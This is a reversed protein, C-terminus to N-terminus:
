RRSELVARGDLVVQRQDLHEVLQPHADHLEGVVVLAQDPSATVLLDVGADATEPALHDLLHVTDAHQDIEAVRGFQRRQLSDFDGLAGNGNGM